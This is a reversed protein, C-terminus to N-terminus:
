ATAVAAFAVCIVYAGADNSRRSSWPLAVFVLTALSGWLWGLTHVRHTSVREGLRTAARCPNGGM